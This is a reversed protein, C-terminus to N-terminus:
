YILPGPVGVPFKNLYVYSTPRVLTEGKMGRLEVSFTYKVDEVWPTTAPSIVLNNPFDEFVVTKVDINPTVTVKVTDIDVPANYILKFSAFGELSERYGSPPVAEIFRIRGTSTLPDTPEQPTVTDPDAENIRENISDPILKFGAPTFISLIWTNFFLIGFVLLGLLILPGKYLKLVQKFRNM